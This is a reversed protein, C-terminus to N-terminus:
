VRKGLAQTMRKLCPSVDARDICVNIVFPKDSDLAVKVCEELDQETKVFAGQIGTMLEGIKHYNWNRLNNFDGDLLFRETTYGGNNLIFIIPNLHRELITSLEPCSMQFGGDGVIVIPRVGPKSVQVGLAGPIASGMSTYFAPCLFHNHHHIVLDMAGFMSDGVDAVVAKTEDLITNIKHFLRGSTIKAEPNAEFATIKKHPPLTSLDLVRQPIDAKFLELCFDKFQVDTYTHNRVKLGDVSAGVTQRKRFRSPKFCLTLDTLMVGFMLLCDSGEVLERTAPESSAGAYIGAFLPDAENIVSKSLLTTAVPVNVKRAFRILESGLEYRALEVGALIVPNNAESLWQQVEKVAEQLNEPDSKPPSPTGQKYVDYSIAKKAV